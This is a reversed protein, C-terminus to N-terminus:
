FDDFGSVKCFVYYEADKLLETGDSPLVTKYCSPPVKFGSDGNEVTLYGERSVNAWGHLTKMKVDEYKDGSVFVVCFKKGHIHQLNKAM